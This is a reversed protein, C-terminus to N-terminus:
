ADTVMRLCTIAMLVDVSIPSCPTTAPISVRRTSRHNATWETVHGYLAISACLSTVYMWASPSTLTEVFCLWVSHSTLTEANVGDDWFPVNACLSTVYMWASPSAPTEVFCLWVSHSTLTEANVGDDWFPVNACLSTVYMWASPSTLTEAFCLWVFHSTLTEANHQRWVTGFNVGSPWVFISHQIEYSSPGQAVCSASALVIGVSPRLITGSSCVYAVRLHSIKNLLKVAPCVFAVHHICSMMNLTLHTQVLGRLRWTVDRHYGSPSWCQMSVADAMNCHMQITIALLLMLNDM